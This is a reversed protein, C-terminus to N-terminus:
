DIEKLNSLWGPSCPSSFGHLNILPFIISILKIVVGYFLPVLVKTMQILEERTKIRYSGRFIPSSFVLILDFRKIDNMISLWEPSCPVLVRIIIIKRWENRMRYGGRFIPSSFLMTGAIYLSKDEYDVVRGYFLPRSCFTYTLCKRKEKFEIIVGSFLPRSNLLM